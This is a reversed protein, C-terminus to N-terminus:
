TSGINSSHCVHYSQLSISHSASNVHLPSHYLLRRRLGQRLLHGITSIGRKALARLPNDDLVSEDRPNRLFPNRVIGQRLVEFVDSRSRRKLHLQHATKIVSSWFPSKLDRLMAPTPSSWLIRLGLGRALAPASERLEDHVLDKWKGDSEDLLRRLWVMASGPDHIHCLTCGLGGHLRPAHLSCPLCPRSTQRAVLFRWVQTEIQRSSTTPSPPSPPSTGSNSTALAKLVTLRGRISLDRRSWRALSRTWRTPSTTWIDSDTVYPGVPFGLYKTPRKLRPHARRPGEVRRADRHWATASEVQGRQHACGLGERLTHLRLTCSTTPLPTSTSHRTTPMSRCSQCPPWVRTPLPSVSSPHHAFLVLSRNTWSRTSAWPSPPRRAAHRAPCRIRQLPLRQHPRIASIDHHLASSRASCLASDWPKSFMIATPGPCVILPRRKTSSSWLARNKNGTSTAVYAVSLM